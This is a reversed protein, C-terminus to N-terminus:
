QFESFADKLKFIVQGKGFIDAIITRNHNIEDENLSKFLNENNNNLDDEISFIILGNRKFFRYTSTTKRIYIRLGLWLASVINGLAQQKRHNLIMVSCGLLLEHYQEKQIFDVLPFFTNGFFKNGKKVIFKRYAGNGYGLPVIIQKEHININRLFAFVELHNSTFSSSNGILINGNETCKQDFIPAEIYDELMAYTHWLMPKSIGTQQEVFEIEEPMFHSYYDIKKLYRPLYRGTLHQLIRYFPIFFRYPLLYYYYFETKFDLFVSPKIKVSHEIEAGYIVWAIKTLPSKHITTKRFFPINEKLLSHFVVLKYKLLENEFFNRDHKSIYRVHLDHPVDKPKGTVIFDSKIGSKEFCKYALKFFITDGNFIHLIM